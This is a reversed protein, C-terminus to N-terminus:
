ANRWKCGTCSPDTTRYSHGCPIHLWPKGPAPRDKCAYRHDESILNHNLDQEPKYITSHKGTSM